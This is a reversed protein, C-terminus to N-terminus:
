SHQKELKMAWQKKRPSETWTLVCCLLTLKWPWRCLWWDEQKSRTREFTLVYWDPVRLLLNLWLWLEQLVFSLSFLTFGWFCLAIKCSSSFCLWVSVERVKVPCNLQLSDWDSCLATPFSDMKWNTSGKTAWQTIDWTWLRWVKPALSFWCILSPWFTKM